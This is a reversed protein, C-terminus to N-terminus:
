IENSSPVQLGGQGLSKECGWEKGWFEAAATGNLEVGPRALIGFGIGQKKCFSIDPWTEPDVAIASSNYLATSLREFGFGMAPDCSVMLDQFAKWFKRPRRLLSDRHVIYQMGASFSQPPADCPTGGFFMAYLEKGRNYMDTWGTKFLKVNTGKFDEADTNERKDQWQVPGRESYQVLPLFRVADSLKPLLDNLAASQSNWGKNGQRGMLTWHFGAQVFVVHAGLEDYHEVIHQLQDHGDRGVNKLEEVSVKLGEPFVEEVPTCEQGPKDYVYVRLRPRLDESIQSLWSLRECHREIVLDISTRSGSSRRLARVAGPLLLVYLFAAVHPRFM